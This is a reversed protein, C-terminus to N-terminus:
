IVARTTAGASEVGVAVRLGHGVRDMCFVTIALCLGPFVGFTPSQYLYGRAEQLMGGWSPTPPPVGLGLVSLGAEVVVALSATIVLQVMIPGLLNLLVTRFMTDPTSAGMGRSAVVFDRDRISLTAARALRAFQPIAAVGIAVILNIRSAGIVATIVLALLVTPVALLLDVFRMSVSDTWRGLYGAVVGLPVGLLAGLAASGCGVTLSARAGYIARSLIDRGLDDTGLWHSGSPGLLSGASQATPDYPALLPAAVACVVIVLLGIAGVVASRSRAYRSLFTRAGSRARVRESAMSLTAM